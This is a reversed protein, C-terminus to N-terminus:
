FFCFLWFVQSSKSSPFAQHVPSCVMTSPTTYNFVSAVIIVPTLLFSGWSHVHLTYLLSLFAPLLDQFIVDKVKASKSWYDVANSGPVALRKFWVRNTEHWLLISFPSNQTIIPLKSSSRSNESYTLVRCLAPNQMKKPLLNGQVLTLFWTM